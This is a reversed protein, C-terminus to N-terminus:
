PKVIAVFRCKEPNMTEVEGWRDLLKKVWWDQTEVTLHLTEGHWADPMLAIQLFAGRKAVDRIADLSADVHETPIHELVDCCYVWDRPITPVGEWLCGQVFPLRSAAPDVASRTIDFLTVLLGAKSLALGARGTGCGIDILSDGPAWKVQKLFYTVLREGPSNKRYDDHAWIRTYKEREEQETSV